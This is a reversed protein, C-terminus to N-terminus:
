GTVWRELFQNENEPTGILVMTQDKELVYDPGPNPQLDGETGIAIITCGTQERINSAKIPKGVLQNPTKVRFVDLGEAVTLLDGRRLLNFFINAGMSAHSMVFDSGARHLTDVMREESSRSIIEIDPRLKRCYITLYVNMEDDHSTIIVAPADRIGAKELTKIDAANGMVYNEQFEERIREDLKEVIRFDIGRAKLEHGTARGVRGGGIVIVPASARHYICFMQDYASM